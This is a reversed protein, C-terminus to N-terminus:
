DTVHHAFGLKILCHLLGGDAVGPVRGISIGEQAIREIEGDPRELLPLDLHSAM